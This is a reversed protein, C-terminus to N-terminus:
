IDRAGFDNMQNDRETAIIVVCSSECTSIKKMCKAMRLSASGLIRMRNTRRDVDM